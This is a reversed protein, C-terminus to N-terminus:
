FEDIKKEKRASLMDITTFYECIQALQHEYEKSFRFNNIECVIEHRKDNSAIDLIHFVCDTCKSCKKSCREVYKKKIYEITM